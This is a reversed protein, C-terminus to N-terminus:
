KGYKQHLGEEIIKKYDYEGDMKIIGKLKKVKKSNISLASDKEDLISRFYSEVMKSLSNGTKAAYKKTKEIVEKELTITLKTNM